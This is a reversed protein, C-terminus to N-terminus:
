KSSGPYKKIVLQLEDGVSILGTGQHVVNRGFEIKKDRMRYTSLTKTPEMDSNLVGKEPDVNPVM